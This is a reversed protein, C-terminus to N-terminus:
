RSFGRLIRSPSPQTEPEIQDGTPLLSREQNARETEIDKAALLKNFRASPLFIPCSPSQSQAVYSALPGRM